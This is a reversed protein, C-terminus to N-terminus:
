SPLDNQKRGAQYAYVRCFTHLWEKFRCRGAGSDECTAKRGTVKPVFQVWSHLTAHSTTGACVRREKYVIAVCLTQRRAVTGSKIEHKTPNRRSTNNLGLEENDQVIGADHMVKLVGM